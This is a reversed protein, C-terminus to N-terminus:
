LPKLEPFDHLMKEYAREFAEDTVPAPKGGDHHTYHPLNVAMLGLMKGALVMQTRIDILDVQDGKNLYWAKAKSLVRESYQHMWEAHLVINTADEPTEVRLDNALDEADAIEGIFGKLEKSRILELRSAPGNGTMKAPNGSPKKKKKSM